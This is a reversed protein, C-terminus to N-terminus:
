EEATEDDEVEMQDVDVPEAPRHFQSKQSAPDRQVKIINLKDDLEIVYGMALAKRKYEAIFQKKQALNMQEYHQKNALLKNTQSDLFNAPMANDGDRSDAAAHNSSSELSLSDSGDQQLDKSGQIGNDLAPASMYNQVEAKQREMRNKTIAAKRLHEVQGFTVKKNSEDKKNWASGFFLLGVSLFVSAAIFLKKDNKM